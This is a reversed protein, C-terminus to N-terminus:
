CVMCLRLGSFIFIQKTKRSRWNTDMMVFFSPEKNLYYKSKKVHNDHAKRLSKISSGNLINESILLTAREIHEMFRLQYKSFLFDIDSPNCELM